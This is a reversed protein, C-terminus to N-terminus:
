TPWGIIEIDYLEKNENFKFFIAWGTPEWIRFNFDTCTVIAIGKEGLNYGDDCIVKNSPYEKHFGNQDLFNAVDDFKSGIPVHSLLATRLEDGSYNDFDRIDFVYDNRSYSFLFVSGILVLLFIFVVIRQTRNQPIVKM